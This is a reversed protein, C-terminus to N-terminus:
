ARAGPTSRDSGAAAPHRGPAGHGTHPEPPTPVMALLVEAPLFLPRGAVM